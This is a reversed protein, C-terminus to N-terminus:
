CGVIRRSPDNQLACILRHHHLPTQIPFKAVDDQSTSLSILVLIQLVDLM